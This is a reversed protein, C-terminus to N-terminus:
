VSHADGHVYLRSQRLKHETLALQEKKHSLHSRVQRSSIGNALNGGVSLLDLDRQLLEADSNNYVM